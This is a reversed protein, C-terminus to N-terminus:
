RRGGRALALLGSGIGGAAGNITVLVHRLQRQWRAHHAVSAPLDRRQPPDADRLEALLEAARDQQAENM